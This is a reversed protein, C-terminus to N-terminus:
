SREIQGASNENLDESCRESYLLLGGAPQPGPFWVPPRKGWLCTRRPAATGCSGREFGPQVCKSAVVAPPASACFWTSYEMTLCQTIRQSTILKTLTGTLQLKKRFVFLGFSGFHRKIQFNVLSVLSFSNCNLVLPTNVEHDHKLNLKAHRMSSYVLLIAM